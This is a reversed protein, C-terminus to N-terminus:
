DALSAAKMGRNIGDFSVLIEDGGKAVKATVTMVIRVMRDVRLVRRTLGM